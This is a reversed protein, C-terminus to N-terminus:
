DHKLIRGLSNRKQPSVELGGGERDWVQFSSM